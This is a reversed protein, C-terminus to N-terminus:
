QDTSYVSCRFENIIMSKHFLNSQIRYVSAIWIPKIRHAVAGVAAFHGTEYATKIKSVAPPLAM